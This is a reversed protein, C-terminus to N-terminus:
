LSVFLLSFLLSSFAENWSQGIFKLDRNQKFLHKSFEITKNWTKNFKLMCIIERERENMWGVNEVLESSEACRVLGLGMACILSFYDTNNWQHGNLHSCVESHLSILSCNGCAHHSHKLGLGTHMVGFSAISKCSYSNLNSSCSDLRRRLTLSFSLFLSTHFAQKEKWHWFRMYIAARNWSREELFGTGVNIM